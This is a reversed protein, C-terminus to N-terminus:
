PIPSPSPRRGLRGASSTNGTSFERTRVADLFHKRDALSVRTDSPIGSAFMWGDAKVALINAYYPAEKLLRAFTASCALAALERVQPLQALTLLMQRTGIAVQEQIGAASIVLRLAEEEAREMARGRERSVSLVLLGITPLACVLVLFIIRGRISSPILRM